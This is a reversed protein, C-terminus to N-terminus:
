SLKEILVGSIVVQGEIEKQAISLGQNNNVQLTVTLTVGYKEPYAKALNLQKEILIDNLYIDFIQQTKTDDQKADSLNYINESPKIQPEVFFLKVLYNANPVDVKYFSCVELMTQFLPDLSTNKPPVFIQKKYYGLGRRYGLQDDFADETYWTYPLILTKWTTKDESFQRGWNVIQMQSFGIFSFAVCLWLNLSKNSHTVHPM